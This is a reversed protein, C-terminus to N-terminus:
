VSREIEAGWYHRAINQCNRIIKAAVDPNGGAFTDPDAGCLTSYLRQLAVSAFYDQSPPEMDLGAREIESRSRAVAAELAARVARDLDDKALALIEGYQREAPTPIPCANTM